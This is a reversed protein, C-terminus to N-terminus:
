MGGDADPPLSPVVYAGNKGAYLPSADGNEALWRVYGDIEPGGLNITLELGFIALVLYWESAETVLFDFEHLIQGVDNGAVIIRSDADYIRRSHIPWFAYRGRRAHDRIPDLQPEYCLYDLNEPSSSIEQAMAEIAVKALFRSIVPRAPPVGSIPLFLKGHSMGAIREYANAAVDVSTDGTKFDRSVTVPVDPLIVGPIPPIRGRRNELGQHFRLRQIETSELFPREVERSFYNNCADCVIGPRLTHLRNGLSHPIIHEESRSL